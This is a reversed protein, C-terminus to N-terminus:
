EIWVNWMLTEKESEVTVTYEGAELTQTSIMWNAYVNSDVMDLLVIGSKSEITIQVIGVPKEFVINFVGFLIEVNIDPTPLILNRKNPERIKEVDMDKKGNEAAAAEIRFFLVIFDICGCFDSKEYFITKKIDYINVKNSQL